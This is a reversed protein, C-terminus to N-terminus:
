RDCAKRHGVISLGDPGVGSEAVRPNTALQFQPVSAAIFKKM